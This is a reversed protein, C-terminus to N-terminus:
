VETQQYDLMQGDNRVGECIKLLSNFAVFQTKLMCTEDVSFRSYMVRTGFESSDTNQKFGRMRICSETESVRM